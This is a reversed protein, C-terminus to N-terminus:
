EVVILLVIPSTDTNRVDKFLFSLCSARTLSTTCIREKRALVAHFQNYSRCLWSFCMRLLIELTKMTLNKNHIKSQKKKDSQTLVKLKKKTGFNVFDTLVWTRHSPSIAERHPEIMWANFVSKSYRWVKRVINRVERRVTNALFGAPVHQLRVHKFLSPFLPTRKTQNKNVWRILANFVVSESEVQWIHCCRHITFDPTHLLRGAPWLWARWAM